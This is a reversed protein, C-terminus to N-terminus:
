FFHQETWAGYHGSFRRMSTGSSRAELVTAVGTRAFCTEFRWCPASVPPLNGPIRPRAPLFRSLVRDFILQSHGLLYNAEVKVAGQDIGLTHDVWRIDLDQRCIAVVQEYRRRSSRDIRHAVDEGFITQKGSLRQRKREGRNLFAM